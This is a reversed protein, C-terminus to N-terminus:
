VFKMSIQEYRDLQCNVLMPVPSAKAGFPSLGNGSGYQMQVFYILSVMCHHHYVPNHPSERSLGHNDGVIKLMATKDVSLQTNMIM